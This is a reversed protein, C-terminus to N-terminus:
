GLEYGPMAKSDKGPALSKEGVFGPLLVQSDAKVSTDSQGIELWLFSLTKKKQTTMM